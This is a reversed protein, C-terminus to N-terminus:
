PETREELPLEPLASTPLKDGYFTKFLDIRATNLDVHAFQAPYCWKAVMEVVLLYKLTWFDCSFIDPFEHVRRNKVASISRWMPLNMIDTPDKRTNYWMVVVQPDWILVNEMNVVLHEQGIDAAVNIGGGLEILENGTSNKGATELEGQSWMLYVKVREEDTLDATRKRIEELTEETYAVLEEAREGTGTLEGLARIERHVDEFSKLFLGFVPIGKEEMARISEEQHSWIIVLDPQLTVMNEINVFDWNGPTSLTKSRIREDMAAYYPFVNGQYVNTSIGVVREEAGLMYLGTLASELLCVIREAPGPLSIEKGRFDTVTVGDAATSPPLIGLLAALLLLTSFRRM